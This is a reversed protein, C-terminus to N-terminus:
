TAQLVVLAAAVVYLVAAAPTNPKQSLSITHRERMSKRSFLYQKGIKKARRNRLNELSSFLPNAPNRCLIVLNYYSQRPFCAITTNRM